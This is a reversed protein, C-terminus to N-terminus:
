GLHSILYVRAVSYGRRDRLGSGPVWVGPPLQGAAQLAEVQDPTLYRDTVKAAQEPTLGAVIQRAAGQWHVKGKSDKWQPLVNAAPNLKAAKLTARQPANVYPRGRDGRGFLPDLYGRAQQETLGMAKLSRLAGQYDLQGQKGGPIRRYVPNGQADVKPQKKLTAVDKGYFWGEVAKQVQGPTPTKGKTGGPATYGPTKTKDITLVWSNTTPNWTYLNGNVTKTVQKTTDVPKPITLIWSNKKADYTYLSGGVSRTTPAKATGAGQIVKQWTRATPNWQYVANGIRQTIPKSGLGAAQQQATIGQILSITKVQADRADSLYQHALDARGAMLAQVAKNQNDNIDRMSTMLQAQAGQTAQLNQASIMGALGFNEAQGASTLLQGPLTGGLYDEVSAQGPGAIGSPGGVTIGTKGIRALKANEADVEAQNAAAAGSTLGSSLSQIERAARNYEGGVAGFLDGSMSAAAEGAASMAQAQAQANAAQRAYEDDLLKKQAAIQADVERQVRAEQQAPTEVSGYLQALLATLPDVPPAKPGPLTGAPRKVPGPTGYGGLRYNPGSGGLTWKPGTYTPGPPYTYPSSAFTAGTWPNPPVVGQWGSPALSAGPPQVAQWITV